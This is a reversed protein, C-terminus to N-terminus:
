PKNDVEDLIGRLKSLGLRIRTKVTGLSLGTQTAIESQSLGSYYALEIIQRQEVPIKALAALVRDRREQIMLHEEPENPGVTPQVQVADTAASVVKAQRQKSRLRDLARSRTMMFLWSDVRGRNTNYSAATHWVQGFVDLVIEEAEEASSLMKFAVAYLVRAYRDYLESLASQSHEAISQVLSIDDAVNQITM